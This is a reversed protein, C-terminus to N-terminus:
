FISKYIRSLRHSKTKHCYDNKIIQEVHKNKKLYKFHLHNSTRSTKKMSKIRNLGSFKESLKTYSCKVKEPEHDEKRTLISWLDLFFTRIVNVIKKTFLQVGITRGRCRTM